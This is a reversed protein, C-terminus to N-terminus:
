NTRYVYYTEDKFKVEHEQGDYRNIFHGRGDAELASQVFKKIGCTKEILSLLFDNCSECTNSQIEQLSKQIKSNYDLGCEDLIFDTNFAWISDKIYDEAYEDAEHQLLVLYEEKGYKFENEDYNSQTIDELESCSLELHIGLAIIKEM